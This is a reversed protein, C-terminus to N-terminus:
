AFSGAEFNLKNESAIANSGRRLDSPQISLRPNLRFSLTAEVRKPILGNRVEHDQYNTNISDLVFVKNRIFDGITVILDQGYAFSKLQNVFGIIYTPDNTRHEKIQLSLTDEGGTYHVIPNSRGAIDVNDFNAKRSDSVDPVYRLSVQINPDEYLAIYITSEM